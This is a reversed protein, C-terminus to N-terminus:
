RRTAVFLIQPLTVDGLTAKLEHDGDAVNPVTLNFQYLGVWGPALGAYTYPASLDVATQDFWVGLPNQLESLGATITGASVSPTVSGFGIGYFTIM